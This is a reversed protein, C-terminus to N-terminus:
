PGCHAGSDVWARILGGFEVQTGPAPTREGGPAWAWGVLADESVHKILAAMDRNGNRAPDKILACIEWLSRGQWAMSAPALHWDPNGPAGGADSNEDHHCNQCRLGPAGHGNPGRVVHPQHQRMADTQTPTDSAPHCNLCRPSTIVRGAEEFLALSRAREDKIGEFSSAPRLGGSQEAAQAAAVVAAGVAVAAALSAPAGRM